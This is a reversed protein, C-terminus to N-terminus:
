ADIFNREFTVKDKNYMSNEKNELNVKNFCKIDKNEDLYIQVTKIDKERAFISIERKIEKEFNKKLNRLGLNKIDCMDIIKEKVNEFVEVKFPYTLEKILKNLLEYADKESPKKFLIIDDIRGFIENGVSKRIEENKRDSRVFGSVKETNEFGKSSTFIVVANKFSVSKGKMDRIIGDDLLNLLLKLVEANAKDFEDFLVIRAPNKEMEEVLIGSEGYGVYGPPSGILKSVTHRDTYESMDIKLLSGKGFVADSLEKALSTKGSGTPGLFLMCAGTASFSTFFANVTKEVAEEQGIVCNNLKEQLEVFSINERYSQLSRKDSIKKYIIKIEEETLIRKSQMKIMSAGEDILDIAKDPLFKGLIHKISIDVATVLAEDTIKISHFEEYKERIGRLIEITEERSPENIYVKQFRRDLACDKEIYKRYEEFTTAGIISIDGRALEPKLINAADLTGDGAGTNVINHIEDIFLIINGAKKIEDFINKIREEFDGRYKAGALLSSVDLSVVRKGRLDKPATGNIIMMAVGDAIASKGVGANGVLCPNNKNKRLLIQFVRELEKERAIIPDLKNLLALFTIDKSYTNLAPTLSMNSKFTNLDTVEKVEVTSRERKEYLLNSIIKQATTNKEKSLIIAIHRLDIEKGKESFALIYSKEIVTHLNKTYNRSSLSVEEGKGRVKVIETMIDSYLFKSAKPNLSIFIDRMSNKSFFSLLLHETGVYSHGLNVALNKCIELVELSDKSLKIM